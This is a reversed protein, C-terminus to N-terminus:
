PSNEFRKKLDDYIRCDLFSNKFEKCEFIITYIQQQNFGQSFLERYRAKIRCCLEDRTLIKNFDYYVIRRSM